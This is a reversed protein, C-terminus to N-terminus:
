AIEWGKRFEPKVFAQAASTSATLTKSNWDFTSQSRYALNSLLVTESMPGSYDFNCSAAEGGKCATIWEEYFPGYVDKGQKHPDNPTVEEGKILQYKDFGTLLLGESGVFLTNYGNAPLNKERLIEPGKAAHDWHLTLPGHTDSAAFELTSQMQKPTRLADVVPGSASVRKPYKLGLAWYPIDLIHCGWNGTEGTGFEWWFRWGYPTISPQYDVAAVPGLWLDYHLHDPVAPKNTPQKPMGREGGVWCYVESVTGVAGQQILEVSRKMNQHTHRQAGLQTALGKERALDCLTRTEWLSHALPKELYIHKGMQLAQYAPHFHTHDPTSIVVGDINNELKDLMKRYDVFKPVNPFQEYAAKSRKGDVDCLAVVNHHNLSDFNAKGRGGVGIFALNLKENPSPAAHMPSAMGGALVGASLTATNRLFNRRTTNTKM